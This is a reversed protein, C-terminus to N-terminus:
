LVFRGKLKKPRPTYRKFVFWLISQAGRSRRGILVVVLSKYCSSVIWLESSASSSKRVPQRFTLWHWMLCDNEPSCEGPRDSNVSNPALVQWWSHGSCLSAEMSGHTRRHAWYNPQKPERKRWLDDAVETSTQIDHSPTAFKYRALLSHKPTM